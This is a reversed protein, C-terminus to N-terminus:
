RPNLSALCVLTEDPRELFHIEGTEIRRLIEEHTSGLAGVVEGLTIFPTLGGCKECRFLSPKASKSDVFFEHREVKLEITRTTKTRRM